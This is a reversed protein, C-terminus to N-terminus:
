QNYQLISKVYIYLYYFFESSFTETLILKFLRTGNIDNLSANYCTSSSCNYYKHLAKAFVYTADVIFQLKSDWNTENLQNNACSSTSALSCGFRHEWFENFWPNRSSVTEVNDDSQDGDDEEDDDGEEDSNGNMTEIIADPRLANFYRDFNFPQNSILELTLAGVAIEDTEGPIVV